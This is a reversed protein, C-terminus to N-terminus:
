RHANGNGASAGPGDSWLDTLLVNAVDTNDLYAGRVPDVGDALRELEKAGAGQAFLPLLTNTHNGSNWQLAAVQGAVGTMPTWGPNSGPGTLYGTEHDGTVIVLTDRWSSETEVWDVVAEVAANFERTEEIMRGAQNAHGAWDIAGGEVMLFLGDADEDLINLAGRTLTALDPVDNLPVEYPTAQANGSRGQQLTSAVQAVGFVREPTTEAIALDEFDAKDEIFAFPTAGTTLNAWASASVYQYRAARPSHSDTYMPHGAGFVVDIESALYDDTIATYSNRSAEHAAYGAPTAHSYPVSTVVGTAKGLSSARETVLEVPSGDVDVGIAADYTKVGAAMATAAAASDTPKLNLYAFDSWALSPEYGGFYSYTTIGVQVDFSEYVQAPTGPVHELTGAVPDVAVQWNATGNEYLSTLDLQNYSMGDGILVIVNKPGHPAAPIATAPIAAAGILATGAVAVVGGRLLSGTRTRNM